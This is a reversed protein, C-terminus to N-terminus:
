HNYANDAQMLKVLVSGLTECGEQRFVPTVIFSKGDVKYTSPRELSKNKDFPASKSSFSQKVSDM